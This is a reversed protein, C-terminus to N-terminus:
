GKFTNERHFRLYYPDPRYNQDKPALIRGDAILLSRIQDPVLKEAVLIRYDDGVSILGRDFLLHFTGSLALGNRVSDPGKARSVKHACGTGRTTRRWQDLELRHGCM